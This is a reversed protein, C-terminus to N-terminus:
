CDEDVSSRVRCWSLTSAHHDDKSRRPWDGRGVATGDRRCLLPRQWPWPREFTYRSREVSDLFVFDALGTYMDLDLDYLTLIM